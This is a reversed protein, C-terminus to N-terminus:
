GAILAQYAAAGLLLDAASPDTVEIECLWGDGYPDRNLLEPTAGLADNVRVVTGSLPCFVDSVSKTSEVEGFRQGASVAAGVAPIEVYVVDGLADQSRFLM